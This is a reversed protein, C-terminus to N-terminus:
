NNGDSYNRYNNYNNFRMARSQNDHISMLTASESLENRTYSNSECIKRKSEEHVLMVHAQSVSPSLTMLLIQSRIANYSENFGMM